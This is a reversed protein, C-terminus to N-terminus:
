VLRVRVPMSEGPPLKLFTQTPFSPIWALGANLSADGDFELILPSQMANKGSKGPLM